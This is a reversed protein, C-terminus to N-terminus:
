EVPWGFPVSTPWAHSDTPNEFTMSSFNALLVSYALEKLRKAV